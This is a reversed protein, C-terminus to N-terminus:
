NNAPKTIFSPPMWDCEGLEEFSPKMMSLRYESETIPDFDIDGDTTRVYWIGDSGQKKCIGTFKM